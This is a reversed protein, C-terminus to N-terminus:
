MSIIYFWDFMGIIQNFILNLRYKLLIFIYKSFKFRKFCLLAGWTPELEIIYLFALQRNAIGVFSLLEPESVNSGLRNLRFKGFDGLKGVNTCVLTTGNKIKYKINNRNNNGTLSFRM